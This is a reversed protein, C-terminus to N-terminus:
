YFRKLYRRKSIKLNNNEFKKWFNHHEACVEEESSSAGSTSAATTVSDAGSLTHTRQAEKVKLTLELSREVSDMKKIQKKVM